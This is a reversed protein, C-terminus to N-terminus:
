WNEIDFKESPVIEVKEGKMESTSLKNGKPRDASATYAWAALVAGLMLLACIAIVKWNVERRPEKGAKEKPEEKLPGDRLLDDVSVGYLESLLKLNDTTPVADGKEWSSVAQRSIHLYDALEEQTMTQKKRLETLKEPLNM